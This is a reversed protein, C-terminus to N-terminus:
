HMFLDDDVGCDRSTRTSMILAIILGYMGLASGTGQILVMGIYLKESAPGKGGAAVSRVGADGAVGLAIGCSLSCLGCVLGAALHSFGTFLSYDSYLRQGSIPVIQTAIIVGVIMGYISLVGAMVIPVINKFVLDPRKVGIHSIAQAAKGTGYAAGINSFILGCAAGSFGLAPAWPPCMVLPEGVPIRPLPPPNPPAAVWGDEEQLARRKQILMQPPADPTGGAANLKLLAIMAGGFTLGLLGKAVGNRRPAAVDITSM